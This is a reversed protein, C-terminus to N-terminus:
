RSVRNQEVKSQAEEMEERIADIKTGPTNSNASHKVTTQYRFTIFIPNTNLVAYDPKMNNWLYDKIAKVGNGTFIIYILSRTRASNFTM